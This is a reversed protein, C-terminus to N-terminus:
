KSGNIIEEKRDKSLKHWNLPSGIKCVACCLGYTMVTACSPTTYGKKKIQGIQYRTIRDNFDPLDSYIKTIDDESVNIGTLYTALYFRAQHNLNIHNKAGELLKAICPPHNDVKIVVTTSSKPVLADIRSAAAKIEQPPDKVLPIIEIRKRIAEEILRRKESAKIEMRGGTLKRNILKYDISRPSNKLFACMDIIINKGDNITTIGFIEGVREVTKEDIKDLMSRAIKSETVAFRNTINSNKLFGLIMRATAFSAIWEIKDNESFLATTRIEGAMGRKIREIAIEIVKENILSNSIYKKAGESFPFATAFDLEEM